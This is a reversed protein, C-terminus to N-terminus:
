LWSFYVGFVNPTDRTLRLSFSHSLALARYTLLTMSLAKMDLRSATLCDFSAWNFLYYLFIQIV